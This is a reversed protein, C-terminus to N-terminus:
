RSRAIIVPIVRTLLSDMNESRFLRVTTVDVDSCYASLKPKVSFSTNSANASYPIDSLCSSTFFHYSPNVNPSFLSM